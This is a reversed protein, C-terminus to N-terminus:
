KRKFEKVSRAFCNNLWHLEDLISTFRWQQALLVIWLLSAYSWTMYKVYYEQVNRSFSRWATTPYAWTEWWHMRKTTFPTTGVVLSIQRISYSTSSWAYMQQNKNSWQISSRGSCRCCIKSSCYWMWNHHRQVWWRSITGILNHMTHFAGLRFIVDRFKEPHKWIIEVAKTYIAQDFVVVIKSLNLSNCILM